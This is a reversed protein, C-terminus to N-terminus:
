ASAGSANRLTAMGDALSIRDGLLNKLGASVSKSINQMSAALGANFAPDPDAELVDDEKLLGLSLAEARAVNRLIMGSGFDFPPWPVGFRSLAVWVPDTKLAVM